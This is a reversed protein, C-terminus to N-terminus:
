DRKRQCKAEGKLGNRNDPRILSSFEYEKGRGMDLVLRDETNEKIRGDLVRYYEFDYFIIRCTPIDGKDTFGEYLKRDEPTLEQVRLHFCMGPKKWDQFRMVM